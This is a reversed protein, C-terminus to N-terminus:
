PTVKVNGYNSVTITETNPGYTLTLTTAGTTAQVLGSPRFQLTTDAGLIVPISSSALPIANGVSAFTGTRGPDSQVQMTGATKKLVIQYAYGSSIAQYRTTQIAGTVSSVAERLSYTNMVKNVTPVAMAAVVIGIAVVMVMEIMTFGRSKRTHEAPISLSQRFALKMSRKEM